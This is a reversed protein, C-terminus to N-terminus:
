KRKKTAPGNEGDPSPRKGNPNPESPTAPTPASKPAPSTRTSRRLPVAPSPTKSRARGRGAAPPPALHSTAPVELSSPQAPPSANHQGDADADQDMPVVEMEVDGTLPPISPPSAPERPEVASNLAGPELASTNEGDPNPLVEGQVAKPVEGNAAPILQGDAPPILQGDAAPILEGDPPADQVITNAEGEVAPTSGSHGVVPAVTDTVNGGVVTAAADPATLSGNGSAPVAPLQSSPPSPFIATEGGGATEQSSTPTASTLKISPLSPAAHVVPSPLSPPPMSSSASASPVALTLLSSSSPSAPMPESVEPPSIDEGVSTSVGEEVGEMEDDEEPPPTARAWRFLTNIAHTSKNVQPVLRLMKAILHHKVFGTGIAAQTVADLRAVIEDLRDEIVALRAEVTNASPNFSDYRGRLPERVSELVNRTHVAIDELREFITTSDDTANHEDILSWVAFPNPIEFAESPLPSAAKGKGKEETTYARSPGAATNKRPNVVITEEDPPERAEDSESGIMAPTKPKPKPKSSRKKAPGPITVTVTPPPDQSNVAASEPKARSKPKGIATTPRSAQRKEEWLKFPGSCKIKRKNCIWCAGRGSGALQPHCARQKTECFKCPPDNTWTRDIPAEPRIPKDGSNKPKQASKPENDLDMANPDAEPDYAADPDQPDAEEDAEENDANNEGSRIVRAGSLVNDQRSSSSATVAPPPRSPINKTTAMSGSAKSKPAQTVAPKPPAATQKAPPPLTATTVPAPQRATATPAPVSKKASVARSPKRASAATVQNRASATQSNAATPISENALKARLTALYSPQDIPPHWLLFCHCYLFPKAFLALMAKGNADGADAAAQIPVRKRLHDKQLSLITKRLGNEMAEVITGDVIAARAKQELAEMEASLAAFAHDSM